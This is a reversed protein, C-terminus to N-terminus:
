VGAEFLTKQRVLPTYEWEEPGWPAPPLVSLVDAGVGSAPTGAPEGARVTRDDRLVVARTAAAALRGALLPALVLKGPVGATVNELFAPLVALDSVGLTQRRRPEAKVAPYVGWVADGDSWVQPLFRSLTPRLGALWNQCTWTPDASPAYSMFNSVLLHRRGRVDQRPVAFLGLAEQEPVAIGSRPARASRVVLMFSLRHSVAARDEPNLLATLGAGNALVFGDARVQYTRQGAAVLLAQARTGAQDPILRTVRGARLAVGTDVLAARLVELPVIASEPGSLSWAFEGAPLDTPRYPRGLRQWMGTVARRTREHLGAIHCPLASSHGSVRAQIREWQRVGRDLQDVDHPGADPFVAGRHLWGHCQGTQGSCLGTKEIVLAPVGRSDLELATLLATVGGGVVVIGPWYVTGAHAPPAKATGDRDEVTLRKM